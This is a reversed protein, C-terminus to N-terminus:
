SHDFESWWCITVSANHKAYSGQKLSAIHNCDVFSHTLTNKLRGYSQLRIASQLSPARLKFHTITSMKNVQHQSIDSALPTPNAQYLVIDSYSISSSPPPQGLPSMGIVKNTLKPKSQLDDRSFTAM